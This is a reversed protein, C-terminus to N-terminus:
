RRLGPPYEILRTLGHRQLCLEASSHSHLGVATAEESSLVLHLEVLADANASNPIM